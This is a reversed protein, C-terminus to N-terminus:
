ELTPGLELDDDVQYRRTEALWEVPNIRYSPIMSTQCFGDDEEEDLRLIYLHDFITACIWTRERDVVLRAEYEDEPFPTKREKHLHLQYALRIAYGVRLWALQNKAEKWFVLLFLSQIVAVTATGEAMARGTLAEAHSLLIPYLDPRFFKASM